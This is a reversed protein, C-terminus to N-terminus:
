PAPPPAATMARFPRVYRQGAQVSGQWGRAQLEAHPATASTVGENWRRRLYPQHRGPKAQRTTAKVLLEEASAAAASRHVTGRSGGLTRAADRESHGAALLGHIAAHRNRTRTVLRRERGCVDRLGV